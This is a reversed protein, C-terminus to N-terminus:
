LVLKPNPGLRSYKSQYDWTIVDIRSYEILYRATKTIHCTWGRRKKKKIPVWLTTEPNFVLPLHISYLLFLLAPQSFQLVLIVHVASFTLRLSVNTHALACHMHSKGTGELAVLWTGTAPRLNITIFDTMRTSVYSVDLVCAWNLIYELLHPGQYMLDDILSKNLFPSSLSSSNLPRISNQFM